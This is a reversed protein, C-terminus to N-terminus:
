GADKTPKKRRNDPLQPRGAVRESPHETGPDSSKSLKGLWATVDDHPDEENM